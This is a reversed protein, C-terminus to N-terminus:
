AHRVVTAPARKAPPVGWAILSDFTYQYISGILPLVPQGSGAKQTHTTPYTVKKLLKDGTTKYRTESM